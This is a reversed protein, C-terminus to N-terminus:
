PTFNKLAEDYVAKLPVKKLAALRRVDDYEPAGRRAGDPQEVVKVKVTGYKTKVRVVERKLVAREVPYYRVGITSTESFIIQTMKERLSAEAVISLLVGPRNKKMQVPTLFVDRAGAAFLREFVYDYLEPSMDDINTEIVLMEDRLSAAQDEGMVLRLLNPRDAFEKQGAGCGIKEITMEPAAGFSQGLSAIIAAGTPTVTEAALDIWEVPLGKLLELAAPGPLPLPGHRSRTVGRGLPIRSFYFADIKLHQSGVAASVIDVISDTAGVEHFHVREPAVGHVKGEAAALRAFIDIARDKVTDELASQRLMRRIEAWSREPENKGAVVRFRAARIAGIKKSGVEIRYKLGSLEKLEAKLADLPLGLDLLAAAFMDGSAGGILDGYVIRM